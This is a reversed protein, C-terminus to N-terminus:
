PGTTSAFGHGPTEVEPKPNWPAQPRCIASYWRVGLKRPVRCRSEDGGSLGELDRMKRM